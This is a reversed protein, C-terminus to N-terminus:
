KSCNDNLQMMLNVKLVSRTVDQMERKKACVNYFFHNPPDIHSFLSKLQHFQFPVTGFQLQGLTQMRRVYKIEAECWNYPSFTYTTLLQLSNYTVGLQLSLIHEVSMVHGVHTASIGDVFTSIEVGCNDYLM